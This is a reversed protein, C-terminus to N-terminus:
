YLDQLDANEHLCNKIAGWCSQAIEMWILRLRFIRHSSSMLSFFILSKCHLWAAAAFIVASPVNVRHTHTTATVWMTAYIQEQIRNSFAFIIIHLLAAVVNWLMVSWLKTLNLNPLVTANGSIPRATSSCYWHSWKAASVTKNDTIKSMKIKMHM